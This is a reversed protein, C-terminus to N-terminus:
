HKNIVSLLPTREVSIYEKHIDGADPDQLLANYLQNLQELDGGQEMIKDIERYYWAKINAVPDTSQDLTLTSLAAPIRQRTQEAIELTMGVARTGSRHYYLWYKGNEDKYLQDTNSEMVDLAHEILVKARYPSYRHNPHNLHPMLYFFGLEYVAPAYGSRAATTLFQFGIRQQATDPASRNMSLAERLQAPAYGLEASQRRLTMSRKANERSYYIPETLTQSLYYMAETDGREVRAELEKLGGGYEEAHKLTFYVTGQLDGLDQLRKGEATAKEDALQLYKHAKHVDIEVGDDGSAYAYAVSYAARYDGLEGARELYYLYDKLLTPDNQMHKRFFRHLMQSAELNGNKAANRLWELGREQAGNEYQLLKEGVLFQAKGQNSFAAGAQRSARNYYEIWIEQQHYQEPLYASIFHTRDARDQTIKRSLNQSKERWYRSQEADNKGLFGVGLYEEALTRQALISGGEASRKLMAEGNKLDDQTLLWYGYHYQADVQGLRAFEAMGEMDEIPANPNPYFLRYRADVQGLSAALELWQQRKEKHDTQYLYFAIDADGWLAAQRRYKIAKGYNPNPNKLHYDSLCQAGWSLKFDYAAECLTVPSLLYFFLIVGSYSAFIIKERQQSSGVWYWLLSIIIAILLVLGTIFGPLIERQVSEWSNSFGAGLIAVFLLAGLAFGIPLIGVTFVLKAFNRLIPIFAAALSSFFLLWILLHLGGDLEFVRSFLENFAQM